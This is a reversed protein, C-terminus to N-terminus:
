SATIDKSTISQDQLTFESMIEQLSSSQNSLEESASATEESISSNQQVIDNVQVLARSMEEIGKKQENSDMTIEKALNSVKDISETIKNLIEATSDAKEVGKEMEKISTEILDTTDKAAEASRGALSRVEEAVVSFGKGYKGARAAEVAANLSLLNTQFAIEDIVKIVKAVNKGTDNIRGIAEVMDKMQQNGEEVVQLTSDTLRSSQAANENNKQTLGEIEKMSSSIQELSAAQTSTGNALAQASNQLEGASSNILQSSNAVNSITHTLLEIANNVSIKMHELDGQLQYNIRHSLNSSAIEDMVSSVDTLAERLQNNAQDSQEKSETFKNLNNSSITEFISGLIMAFVLLVAYTIMSYQELEGSSLKHEPFTVGNLKLYYILVISIISLSGWILGSRLGSMMLACFCVSSYYSAISNTVGGRMVVVMSVLVFLSGITLNSSVRRLGTYKLLFPGSMTFLGFLVIILGLPINVTIFFSRISQLIVVIGVLIGVGVTIKVKAYHRIDDKLEEPIFWDFFSIIKM